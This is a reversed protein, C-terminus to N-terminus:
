TLKKEREKKKEKKKKRGRTRQSEGETKNERKSTLFLASSFCFLYNLPEGQILITRTIRCGSSSSPYKTDIWDEDRKYCFVTEVSEGMGLLLVTRLELWDIKKDREREREQREEREREQRERRERGRKDVEADPRWFEFPRWILCTRTGLTLKRHVYRWRDNSDMGLFSNSGQRETGFSDQSHIALWTNMWDIWTDNWNHVVLYSGINPWSSVRHQGLLEVTTRLRLAVVYSGIPRGRWLRM